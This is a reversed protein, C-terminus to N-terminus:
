DLLFDIPHISETVIVANYEGDQLDTEGYALSSGSENKVIRDIKYEKSDIRLPMGEKLEGGNYDLVYAKKEQVVVHADKTTELNGITAWVLIGVILIIASILVLWVGPSTVKLYDTLQEPATIRNITQQRFVKSENQRNDNKKENEPM